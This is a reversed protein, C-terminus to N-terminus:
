YRYYEPKFPGDVPVGIYDAQKFMVKEWFRYYLGIPSNKKFYGFAVADEWTFDPVLLYFPCHYFKKLRKAAYGLEPPLSHSFVLDFMENKFYKKTFKVVKFTYEIYALAKKVNNSVGTFDPCNIRLVDIGNESVVRTPEGTKDKTVVKVNHGNKKFEHILSAFLSSEDELHPLSVFHFLINM